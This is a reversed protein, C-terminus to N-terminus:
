IGNRKEAMSEPLSLTVTTGSNVTSEIELTGRHAKVIENVLALGLGTGGQKKSRSKDVMYFPELIRPLDEQPIGKGHDIIQISTGHVYVEVSQGPRSAKAAHQVLNVLACQMLNRDLLLVTDDCAIELNVQYQTLVDECSERLSEMLGGLPVAQLDIAKEASLLKLLSGTMKELWRCQKEMNAVTDLQEEETMYTNQLSDANLLLSTLPTKFEHSVAGIFLKQRRNQEQLTSVTDEVSDAMRDFSQSLDGIEDKRRIGTRQTYNGDAIRGAANSLKELPKMTYQILAVILVLGLLMAGGMRAATTLAMQRIEGHLSTLDLVTYVSYGPDEPGFPFLGSVFILYPIGDLETELSCTYGDDSATLLQQPDFPIHSSLVKGERVLVSTQNGCQSFIYKAQAEAVLENEPTIQNKQMQRLFSVLFEEHDQWAQEWTHTLYNRKVQQTVTLFIGSFLLVLVACSIVAIKKWLKM